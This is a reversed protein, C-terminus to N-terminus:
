GFFRAAMLVLKVHPPADELRTFVLGRGDGTFALRLHSRM